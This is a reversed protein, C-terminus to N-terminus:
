SERERETQTRWSHPKATYRADISKKEDDVDSGREIDIEGETKDRQRERCIM